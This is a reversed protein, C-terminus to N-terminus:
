EGLQLVVGQSNDQSYEARGDIELLKRRFICCVM